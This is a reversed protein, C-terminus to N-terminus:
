LNFTPMENANNYGWTKVCSDNVYILKQQLDAIALAHISLRVAERMVRDKEIRQELEKYTPRGTMLFGENAM